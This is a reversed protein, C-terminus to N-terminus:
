KSVQHCRRLFNGRNTIVTSIKQTSTMLQWSLLCLCVKPMGKINFIRPAPWVCNMIKQIEKTQWIIGWRPNWKQLKHDRVFLFFLRFLSYFDMAILFPFIKSGYIGWLKYTGNVMWFNKDSSRFIPDTLGSSYVIGLVMSALILPPLASLM